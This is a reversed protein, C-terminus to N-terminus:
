GKMASENITREYKSQTLSQIRDALIHRDIAPESSLVVNRSSDMHVEKLSFLEFQYPGLLQSM